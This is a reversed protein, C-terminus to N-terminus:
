AFFGVAPGGSRGDDVVIVVIVCQIHQVFVFLIRGSGHELVHISFVIIDVDFVYQRDIFFLRESRLELQEDLGVVVFFIVDVRQFRRARRRRRNARHPVRRPV